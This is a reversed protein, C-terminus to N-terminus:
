VVAMSDLGIYHEPDDNPQQLTLQHNLFPNFLVEHPQFDPLLYYEAIANPNLTQVPLRTERVSKKGPRLQALIMDHNQM